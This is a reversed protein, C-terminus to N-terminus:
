ARGQSTAGIIGRGDGRAGRDSQRSRSSRRARAVPDLRRLRPPHHAAHVERAKGHEDPECPACLVPQPRCDHNSHHDDKGYPVVKLGAVPSSVRCHPRRDPMDGQKPSHNEQDLLVDDLTFLCFGNASDLQPVALIEVTALGKLIAATSPNAPTWTAVVIYQGATASATLIGGGTITGADVPTVSWSLSGAAAAPLTFVATFTTTSGAAVTISAPTVSLKNSAPAPSPKSNPVGGCGAVGLAIAWLALVTPAARFVRYRPKFSASPSVEHM